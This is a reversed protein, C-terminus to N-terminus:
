LTFQGGSLQALVQYPTIEVQSRQFVTGLVTLTSVSLVLVKTNITNQIHSPSKNKDGPVRSSLHNPCSTTPIDYYKSTMLIRSHLTSLPSHASGTCASSLWQHIQLLYFIAFSQQVLSLHSWVHRLLHRKHILYIFVLTFYLTQYTTHLHKDENFLTQVEGCESNCHIRWNLLVHYQLKKKKKISLLCEGCSVSAIHCIIEKFIPYLYICDNKENIRM